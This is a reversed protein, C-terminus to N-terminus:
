IWVYHGDGHRFRYEVVGGGCDILPAIQDLVRPADDPHLCDRWHKLDTITEQPEYGMITKINESVFTCAFDGSARTSYIIAPSVALLHELRLRARALESDTEERGAQSAELDKIRQRLAVIEDMLEENTRLDSDM